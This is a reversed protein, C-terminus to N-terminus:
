EGSLLSANDFYMLLAPDEQVVADPLRKCVQIIAAYDKRQWCEKFGARLAETRVVKLKGKTDVHQQFEKLLARNRLQELDVEKKPDPVRWTNDTDKIFNQELITILELPQEHKEWVRQAEKMYLPSLTQYTMPQGLLQQRVWQIASKEDNVFLQLQSVEKISARQRDYEAVQDSLFHMGDRVPFRQRLGAYFEAASIPVSYGRQVHFAVMRDFLLYGEREAIVEARDAKTVFIPIHRLHSRVFEWAGAESSALVKFQEEFAATPKYASIVLDQKVANASNYQKFSGQQKDLTRVDCVVFRAHQIGEQIATWVRNQSNHFEVTMWRGPKLVRYYEAFCESILRQYETLGKKQAKNEIAEPGNNTRVRLWSEWLFNLESYMLNGGFPPDTFIYDICSDPMSVSGASGVHVVADRKTLRAAAIARQTVDIRSSFINLWNQEGNLSPVYLTGATHPKMPGTDKNIWRQPLFRATKLGVTYGGLLACKAEPLNVLSNLRSFCILNRHTYFHHVNTIGANDNRRSEDGEPMRETPFWDSTKDNGIVDLLARDFDDPIKERRQKGVSYNILVPVQKAQRIVGGVVPNRVTVFAAEMSRKTLKASCKPCPFEERVEGATKDVAADWFVVEGSCEPCVFVDSWVTYNIRGLPLGTGAIRLDARHAKLLGIAASVQSPKPNDLTLYMWGCEAEAQALVREAHESLAPANVPTNYTRAIFSAAPSLDSLIAKRTGLKSFSSGEHDILTGDSEVKYGLSQIAVRDGCLQAAVGAMGTGCFGDYVIQGPETYHLIYRMIAKHPVKTHYSHANYIPDNKGESVDAAFPDRSYTDNSGDYPTGNIRIFEHLLPNPCATYFPPDSLALIDEDEGIPFGEIKRFEPDKLKERLKELFYTRRVQDNPFTMGFCEVPGQAETGFLGPNTDKAM